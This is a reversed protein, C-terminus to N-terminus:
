HVGSSFATDEPFKGELQAFFISKFIIIRTCAQHRITTPNANQKWPGTGPNPDWHPCVCQKCLWASAADWMCFLPLNACINAPGTKRALVLFCSCSQEARSSIPWVACLCDTSCSNTPRVYSYDVPFEHLFFPKLLAKFFAYFIGVCVCVCM